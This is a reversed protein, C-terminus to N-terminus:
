NGSVHIFGACSDANQNNGHAMYNGSITITNNTYSIVNAWVPRSDPDRFTTIQIDFINNFTHPLTIVGVVNDLKLHLDIHDDVRTLLGNAVGATEIRSNPAFYDPSLGRWFDADLGSGAGMYNQAFMRQGNLFVAGTPSNLDLNGQPNFAFFQQFGVNGNKAYGRAVGDDDSHIDVANQGNWSAVHLMGTANVNNASAIAGRTWFNGDKLTTLAAGDTGYTVANGDNQFSTRRNAYVIDVRDNYAAFAGTNFAQAGVHGLVYLEKNDGSLDFWAALNGANNFLAIHDQTEFNMRAKSGNSSCFFGCGNVFTDGTFSSGGTRLFVDPSLGRWFDADLGSGAGMYNQAFMRQGNLFVAGTPSNLDLNGQPNFAFFQQFGVNGNKAYGRAVGDDDSHIDVANQGNFSQVHLMGTANINNASAIADRTWFRGDQLTSLIAADTGYNVANGDTQFSFRRNAYVIDVRDNYAAFAGTNFAQAGVHGQVYLEKNDGSLDFWAALNGANNFLAIHDQTEFNMRAKSGNSSCFFGCGNVFTDGTFSSGGTRLFVDPSLGRWFDADLGSGAGMYNQAFMRQGNLFVAGTPSNLDLNGQPNFAFFQQFGVNGNKAYGRAVGDDDSHIDVANQGNFSQVHLMGTANINNASAIADRTWFRGDQLTSLIAADTGYNVANGDTQFSFRRNAYVIDVRDNYAAFAGTNFAQAGVHGQIDGGTKDFKTALAAIMDAQRALKEAYRRLEVPSVAINEVSQEAEGLETLRTVGATKETAAPNVFDLNGFQIQTADIDAFRIDLQLLLMAAASKELIPSSQGYIAFLTGDDLYLAFSRVTYISDGDDKATLHIADAATVEGSIATIRKIEDPLNTQSKDATIATASVGVSVISIAQTGSKNANILAARGADTITIKLAM